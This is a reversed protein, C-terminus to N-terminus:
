LMFDRRFELSKEAVLQKKQILKDLYYNLIFFYCLITFHNITIIHLKYKYM